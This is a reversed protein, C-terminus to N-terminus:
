FAKRGERYVQKGETSVPNSGLVEQKKRNAEKPSGIDKQNILTQTQLFYNNHM